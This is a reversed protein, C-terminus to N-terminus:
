TAASRFKLKNILDKKKNTTVIISLDGNKFKENSNESDSLQIRSKLFTEDEITLEGRAVRDCLNSFYPDKQSRMKETLYYICFNERWHSPAFDPRGDLHNKETIMNDMIPPLQWLDGSAIFSVGGMFEQKKYSEAVDQLRFNIKSLKMSGVMSIEDCFIVKVDEFEFKMMALRSADTQNYHDKDSPNFRLVPDITKGGVIHAANATPAMVIVPPKSLEDGPKIRIHKIAEIM